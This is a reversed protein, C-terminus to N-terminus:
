FEKVTFKKQKYKGDKIIGSHGPIIIDFNEIIYKKTKVFCKYDHPPIDAKDFDKFDKYTKIADGVVIYKKNNKLFSLSSHGATHGITELVSVNKTINFKKNFLIIDGRKVIKDFFKFTYIDNAKVNKLYNWEKVNLYIDVGKNLFLDINLCHDYHLHSLFVKNIKYKKIIKIIDARVAYHGVDFLIIDKGDIILSISSYGLGGNKTKYPLGEILLKYSVEAM